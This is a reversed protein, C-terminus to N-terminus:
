EPPNGISNILEKMKLKYNYSIFTSIELQLILTFLGALWLGSLIILVILGTEDEPSTSFESQLGILCLIFLGVWIIAQIIGSIKMFTKYRSPIPTSPFFRHVAYINLFNNLCIMVMSLEIGALMLYDKATRNNTSFALLTGAIMLGFAVLQLYCAILFFKWKVSIKKM